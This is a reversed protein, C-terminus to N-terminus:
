SGITTWRYDRKSFVHRCALRRASGGSQPVLVAPYLDFVGDVEGEVTAAIRGSNDIGWAAFVHLRMAKSADTLLLDLNYGDDGEWLAAFDQTYGVIQGLDNISTAMESVASLRKLKVLKNKSTWKVADGFNGLKRSSWGVAVGSENIALAAANFGLDEMVVPESKRSAWKIAKSFGNPYADGVIVGAENVALPETMASDAVNSLELAKVGPLQWTVGVRTGDSPKFATGVVLGKDNVAKAVTVNGAVLPKLKIAGDDGAWHWALPQPPGGDNDYFYGVFVGSSPAAGAAENHGKSVRALTVPKTGVWEIASRVTRANFSYGFPIGTVKSLGYASSAAGAVGDLRELLKIEYAPAASASTWMSVVALAM